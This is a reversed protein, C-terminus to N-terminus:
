AYESHTSTHSPIFPLRICDKVRRRKVSMNLDSMFTRILPNNAGALTLDEVLDCLRRYCGHAVDCPYLKAAGTVFIPDVHQVNIDECWVTGGIDRGESLTEGGSFRNRMLAGIVNHGLGLERRKQHFAVTFCETWMALIAGADMFHNGTGALLIHARGRYKRNLHTARALSMSGREFHFTLPGRQGYGWLSTCM